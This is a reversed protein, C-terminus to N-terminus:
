WGSIPLYKQNLEDIDMEFLSQGTNPRAISFLNHAGPKQLALLYLTRGFM